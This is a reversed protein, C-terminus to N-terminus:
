GTARGIKVLAAPGGPPPAVKGIKAPVRLAERDLIESGSPQILQVDQISGDAGVTIRIRATGEEGRLQASRPYSNNAAVLQAVKTSWDNAMAPAALLAALAAIGIM